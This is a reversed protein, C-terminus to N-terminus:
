SLGCDYVLLVISKLLKFSESNAEVDIWFSNTSSHFFNSHVINKIKM